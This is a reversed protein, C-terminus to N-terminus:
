GATARGQRGPQVTTLFSRWAGASFTIRPGTPSKSDRVLTRGSLGGAVEVCNGQDGSFSSKRWTARNLDVGPGICHKV